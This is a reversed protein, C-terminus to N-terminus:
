DSTRIPRVSRKLAAIYEPYHPESYRELDLTEAGKGVTTPRSLRERSRKRSRYESFRSTEDSSFLINRSPAIIKRVNKKKNKRSNGENELSDVVRTTALFYGNGRSAPSGRTRYYYSALVRRRFEAFSCFKKSLKYAFTCEHLQLIIPRKNAENCSSFQKSRKKNLELTLNRRNLIERFKIQFRSWSLQPINFLFGDEIFM